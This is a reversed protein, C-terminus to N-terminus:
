YERAGPKALMEIRCNSAVGGHQRSIPINGGGTQLLIAFHPIWVVHSCIENRVWSVGNRATAVRIKRSAMRWVKRATGLVLSAWRTCSAWSLFIRLSALAAWASGSSTFITENLAAM